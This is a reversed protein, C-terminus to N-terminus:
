CDGGGRTAQVGPYQGARGRSRPVCRATTFLTIFVLRSNLDTVQAAERWTPMSIEHMMLCCTHDSISRTNTWHRETVQRNYSLSVYTFCMKLAFLSDERWQIVRVWTASQPSPRWIHLTAAFNRVASLPHDVLKHNSRPQYIRVTSKALSLSQHRAETLATIFHLWTV